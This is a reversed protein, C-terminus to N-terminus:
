LRVHAVRHDAELKACRGSGSVWVGHMSRAAHHINCTAVAHLRGSSRWWRCAGDGMWWRALATRVGALWMQVLVPGMGVRSRRVKTQAVVHQLLRMTVQVLQARYEEDQACGHAFTLAGLVCLSLCPLPVQMTIKSVRGQAPKGPLLRSLQLM